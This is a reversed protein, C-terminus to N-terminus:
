KPKGTAIDQNRFHRTMDRMMQAGRARQAANQNGSIATNMFSAIRGIAEPPPAQTKGDRLAARDRAVQERVDNIRDADSVDRPEGGLTEMTKMMDVFVEELYEERDEEKVRDYDKAYKDWMDVALRAGNQQIQDRAAGAIGAAFSAMLVSDNGDMDKLRQVLQGILRMREEVPLANFEDTLLTYNFVEDMGASDYDPQPIPRLWFYLGLGIALAAAAGSSSVITITKRREEDTRTHDSWWRSLNDRANLVATDLMDRRFKM